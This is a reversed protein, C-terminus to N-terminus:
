HLRDAPLPGFKNALAQLHGQRKMTRWKDKIDVNTRNPVFEDHIAAWNGVGHALVGKYVLEEEVTSWAIKGAAKGTHKKRWETSPRYIDDESSIHTADSAGNQVSSTASGTSQVASTAGNSLQGDALKEVAVAGADGGSPVDNKSASKMPLQQRAAGLASVGLEACDGGVNQCVSEAARVLFPKSMGMMIKELMGRCKSMVEDFDPNMKKASEPDNIMAALQDRYETEDANKWNLWQRGFV